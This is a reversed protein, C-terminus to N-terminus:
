FAALIDFLYSPREIGVERRTKKNGSTRPLAAGRAEAPGSGMYPRPAAEGLPLGWAKAGGM